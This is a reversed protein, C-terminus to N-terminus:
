NNHRQSKVARLGFRSNANLPLQHGITRMRLSSALARLWGSAPPRGPVGFILEQGIEAEGLCISHALGQAGCKAAPALANVRM